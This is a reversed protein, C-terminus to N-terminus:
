RDLRKVYKKFLDGREKYDKFLGFSPSAPSLLCIKGKNTKFSLSVAEKMNKVFFHNIRKNKDLNSIEKFIKKGTEPFLIVTKIKSKLIEKALFKFNISRDFGGLIITEVKPGLSKIALITAEPITALSDNYFTIGKFKGVLEMRHELGKFTNIVKQIIKPSIKFIKGVEKAANKNLEYYDGTIPIKNAKSKKAFSSVLKDKKNFILYDEKKQYLTINNKAKAYEKFDKYYDLHESFINLFVSINPSQKLNYLQHSSLEYVFVDKRNATLLSSLVPKGINGILYVNKNKTKLINYILSSTTSKGKTGTIGIILGPCNDLFLDTQTIIKNLFSKPILKFPIGPSKIIIDYKEISKLYNKGLFLDANAKVKTNQDAVGIKKNPFLKRLFSFTDKGERGFGLILIKKDKLQILKM